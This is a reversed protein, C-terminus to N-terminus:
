RNANKSKLLKGFATLEQNKAKGKPAAMAKKDSAMAKRKAADKLAAKKKQGAFFMEAGPETDLGMGIRPEKGKAARSEAARGKSELRGPKMNGMRNAEGPTAGRKMMVGKRFFKEAKDENEPTELGAARMKDKKM